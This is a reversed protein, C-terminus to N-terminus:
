RTQAGERALEQIWGQKEEDGVSLWMPQYPIAHDYIETLFLLMASVENKLRQVVTCQTNKM